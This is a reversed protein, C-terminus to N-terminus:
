GVAHVRDDSAFEAVVTTETIQIFWCSLFHGIAYHGKPGLAFVARWLTPAVVPPSEVILRVLEGLIAYGFEHMPQYDDNDNKESGTLWWVQHAWFATVLQRHTELEHEPITPIVQDVQSRFLWAFANQLFHTDLSGSLRRGPEKTFRIGDKADRRQRQKFELREVREAIALPNIAAVTMKGAVLSRTRLWRCWRQWRLQHSEDDRYGVPRLMSLGSWLVAFYLLRWWRLDLVHRKGYAAWVLAQVARDDGSTLLRLLREDNLTSPEPIWREVAFYAAFELHSPAMQFRPGPTENSIGAIAADIISQARQQVPANEALWDPARLLLLAAAAVRPSRIMEEELEIKGDGDAAAMLSAVWEAEQQHLMRTQGLFDRCTQPFKLAELSLSKKQQFAAIAEALDQPCAFTFSQTGTATDVVPSYHRYDLQAVLIRFELAEKETKPSTWQRSTAVVFDGMARDNVVMKPVIERLKKKRYPAFVWIKAIEFVVDGRRAWSLMAASAYEDRECRWSDWEYIHQVGLLPRLPGKFLDECCKGANVLVGLVAVSNTARLLGDILPAVDVSADILNCLWQELAALACHLQGVFTSDEHSWAFVWCNRAYVRVTGDDLRLSLPVPDSRSHERVAQVWREMSFNVLRHLDRLAADPNIQFFAYFPSKWPATPYGESDFEIGLEHELDM